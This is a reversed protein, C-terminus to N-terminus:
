IIVYSLKIKLKATISKMTTLKPTFELEVKKLKFPQIEKIPKLIKIGEGEIKLEVDMYYNLNNYIYIEKISKEGAIVSEFKISDKIEKKKSKDLFIKIEKM